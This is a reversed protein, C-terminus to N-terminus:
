REKNLYDIHVPTGRYEKETHVPTRPIRGPHGKETLVPTRSDEVERHTGPCQPSRYVPTGQAEGSPDFGAARMRPRRVIGCLVSIARLSSTPRETLRRGPPRPSEMGPPTMEELHTVNSGVQRIQIYAEPAM